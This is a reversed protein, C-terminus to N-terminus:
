VFIPMRRQLAVFGMHATVTQPLGPTGAREHRIGRNVNVIALGDTCVVTEDAAIDEVPAEAPEAAALDIQEDIAGLNRELVAATTM